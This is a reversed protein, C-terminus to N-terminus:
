RSPLLTCALVRSPFHTGLLNYSWQTHSSAKWQNQKHSLNNKSLQKSRYTELSKLGRAMSLTMNIPLVSYLCSFDVFSTSETLSRWLERSLVCAAKVKNELNIHWPHQDKRGEQSHTSINKHSQGCEM